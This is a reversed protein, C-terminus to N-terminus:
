LFVGIMVAVAVSKSNSDSRSGSGESPGHITFYSSSVEVLSSLLVLAAHVPAAYPAYVAEWTTAPWTVPSVNM